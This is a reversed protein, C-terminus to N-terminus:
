ASALSGFFDRHFSLVRRKAELDPELSDVGQEFTGGLVIGDSRSFMYNDGSLVSYSVEPQPLLLTLQGKAPVLEDDGFLAKAGFGTCNIITSEPLASLQNMDKITGIVVQGGALRVQSLLRFLYPNPEIMMSAFQRVYRTPFPNREPLLDHLDPILERIPSRRGVLWDEGIKRDSCMYNTMWRVGWSPHCMSQFRDYAFRAASVFQERFPGALASRHCSSFPFWQAGAVNSTTGPPLSAAYITVTAGREQLLRATALGVAGCGLVAIRRAEQSLALKTALHATGWSLTVGAGGHGYNHVILKDGLKEPRVVFGSARYPRLGVVTRIERQSDINVPSLHLRGQPPSRKSTSACGAAAGLGLLRLNQRRNM